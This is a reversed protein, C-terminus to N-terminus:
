KPENPSKGESQKAATKFQEVVASKESSTAMPLKNTPSVSTKTKRRRKIALKLVIALIIGSLLLALIAWMPWWILQASATALIPIGEKAQILRGLAAHAFNSGFLLTYGTSKQGAALSGITKQQSTSGARLEIAYNDGSVNAPGTATFRTLSVFPLIIYQELKLSGTTAASPAVSKFSVLTNEYQYNTDTHGQMVAPPAGDDQGWIAFAFHDLDSKGFNNFKEGWTPDVNIWGVKPIYVEVWSHLSDAVSESQKLNGSYAYGVPMRAPIGQSRLLAILLDSYELCVANTPNELAKVAGQRINYQIKANNYTLKDIVFQDLAQTIKAVNDGTSATTAQAQQIINSDTSQWYQTPKTYKKVLDTPIDRKNGSKSLDYDMYTEVSDINTKVTVTQHAPVQFDALVNGDEDLHTSSPAPDLSNIFIKQSTTDPPLTVTFTQSHSTNNQLPFNFNVNYITQDGFILTISSHALDSRNFSYVQKDNEVGLFTPQVTTAHVHGFDGPVLLRASYNQTVDSDGIAPIFVTHASGKTEVLKNTDYDVHFTWSLGNGVNTRNFHVTIEIFNYSYGDVTSQQTATTTPILTGDNYYARVNTVNDTPTSLQVSDLVTRDTNNTVHFTQAVHTNGSDDVIYDVNSQYSFSAAHASTPWLGKVGATILSLAFIILIIARVRRKSRNFRM